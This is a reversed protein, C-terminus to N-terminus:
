EVDCWSGCKLCKGEHSVAPVEGCLPCVFRPKLGTIWYVWGWIGLIVVVAFCVVVVLLDIVFSM